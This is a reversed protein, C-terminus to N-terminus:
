TEFQCTKSSRFLFYILKLKRPPIEICPGFIKMELAKYSVKQNSEKPGPTFM